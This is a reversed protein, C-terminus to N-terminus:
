LLKQRSRYYQISKDIYDTEKKLQELNSEIKHYRFKLAPNANIFQERQQKLIDNVRRITRYKAYYRMAVLFSVLQLSYTLPEMIDWGLWDVQFITWYFGGFQAITLLLLLYIYMMGRKEALRMIEEREKELQDITLQRDTKERSLHNVEKYVPEILTQTARKMLELFQRVQMQQKGSSGVLSNLNRLYMALLSAQDQPIGMMICEQYWNITDIKKLDIQNLYDNSPSSIPNKFYIKVVGNFVFLLTRPKKLAMFEQIEYEPEVPRSLWM